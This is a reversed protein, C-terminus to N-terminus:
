LGILCPSASHACAQGHDFTEGARAPLRTRRGSANRACPLGAGIGSKSPNSVSPMSNANPSHRTQGPSFHDAPTGASGVPSVTAVHRLGSRRSRSLCPHFCHHPASRSPQRAVRIRYRPRVAAVACPRLRDVRWCQQRQVATLPTSAADALSGLSAHATPRWNRNSACHRHGLRYGCRCSPPTLVPAPAVCTGYELPQLPM